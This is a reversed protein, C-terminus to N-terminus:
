MRRTGGLATPSPGGVALIHQGRPHVQGIALPGLVSCYFLSLRPARKACGGLPISPEPLYPYALCLSYPCFTTLPRHAGSGASASPELFPCPNTVLPWHAGDAASLLVVLRGALGGGWVCEASRRTQRRSDRIGPRM